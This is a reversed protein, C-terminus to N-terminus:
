DHDNGEGNKHAKYYALQDLYDRTSDYLWGNGESAHPKDYAVQFASTDVELARLEQRMAELAEIQPAYRATIESIRARVTRELAGRQQELERAKEHSYYPELADRVLRALEGAHLAELADLETAGAGFTGEFRAARRETEKIPTRPLRYAQVQEATLALAILRVDAPGGGTRIAWEVKRATAVPMSNGAPDFDSIYFIRAPKHSTLVRNILSVCVATISAEGEFTVLNANYAECVPLLVDDMTSKECWVELHFPQVHANHYGDIWIHPATLDPVHVTFSPASDQWDYQAFIHPDPNKRDIIDQISVLGLYRAMKSAQTLYKWCADTNEYPKGNPLTVPPDQSVAWYHVRRLHVGSTYGARTWLDAFWRAQEQDAPTGAYFPDNQRALALLDPVKVGPTSEALTKITAYNWSRM